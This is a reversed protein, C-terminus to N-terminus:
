GVRELVHERVEEPLDEFSIEKDVFRCGPDLPNHGSVPELRPATGYHPGSEKSRVWTWKGPSVLWIIILSMSIGSCSLARASVSPWSDM